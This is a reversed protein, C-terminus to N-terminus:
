LSISLNGIFKEKPNLKKPNNFIIPEICIFKNWDDNPLDPIKKTLEKGPNWIMWNEFGTATIKLNGYGNHFSINSNGLYLREIEDSSSISFEKKLGRKDIYDILELGNINIHSRSKIRFYPHLGGTFEFMKSGVNEVIFRINLNTNSVSYELTLKANYKWNFFRSEDILCNYVIKTHDASKFEETLDWIIDRAFGHKKSGMKEGFQPFIIPIGGRKVLNVDILNDETIYFIQLDGLEAQLLQAGVSSHTINFLTQVM